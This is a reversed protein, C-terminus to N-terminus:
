LWQASSAGDVSPWTHSCAVHCRWFLGDRHSDLRWPPKGGDMSRGRGPHGILGYWTPWVAPPPCQVARAAAAAPNLPPPVPLPPTQPLSVPPPTTPHLAPAPPLPPQPRTPPHTASPPQTPRQRLPLFPWASATQGPLVPSVDPGIHPLRGRRGALMPRERPVFARSLVHQLHAGVHARARARADCPTCCGSRTASAAPRLAGGGGVGVWVCM